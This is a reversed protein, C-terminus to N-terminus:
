DSLHRFLEGFCPGPATKLFPPWPSCCVGPKMCGLIHQVLVHTRGFMGCMDHKGCKKGTKGRHFKHWPLHGFVADVCCPLQASLTRGM